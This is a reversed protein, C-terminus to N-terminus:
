KLGNTVFPVCMMFSFCASLCKGEYLIFVEECRSKIPSIPYCQWDHEQVCRYIIKKQKMHLVPYPHNHYAVRQKGLRRLNCVNMFVTPIFCLLEMGFNFILEDNM